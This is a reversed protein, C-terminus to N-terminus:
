VEMLNRISYNGLDMVRYNVKDKTKNYIKSKTFEENVCYVEFGTKGNLMSNVASRYVSDKQYTEIAFHTLNCIKRGPMCSLMKLNMLSTGNYYIVYDFRADGFHKQLERGCLRNMSRQVFGATVGLRLYLWRAAYEGATANLGAQLPLYGIESRLEQLVETNKRASSAKFCIYYNCENSDLDNIDQILKSFNRRDSIADLYLLVNKRGGNKETGEVKVSNEGFVLSRCVNKATDLSDYHCFEEQFKPYGENPKNIEEVLEEVTDAKPLEVANLDLYMGREQLYIERDYTFLIMKKGSVGFDFMISSYDTVLVDAANLFDYTDYKSPFPRIHRYLSYDVAKGVFPHLKVYFIQKESLMEDLCSLYQYIIKVQDDFNKKHLLGRWTPMYVIVQKGKLDNECVIKNGLKEQFLASNRPYGSLMIQGPYINRIMYDDLFIDRSFENQYLLMDSILFNRQVNGLGYERGPVQRGMAKLPTGHWTNLYVQEKKKIYYTPFTTDTILYGAAALAKYYAESHLLVTHVRNLQYREALQEWKTQREEDVVLLIRYDSFEEGHFARIMNFVNGAIDEGHKSELLILKKNVKEKLYAKTYGHSAPMDFFRLFKIRKAVVKRKSRSRKLENRFTAAKRKVVFAQQWLRQPIFKNITVATLLKKRNYYLTRHKRIEASSSYKLYHNNQWGPFNQDLFDHTENVMRKKLKLDSERNSFLAPYRFFFHRTCVYALEDRYCMEFQHEKMFEMVNEFAKVIDLTAESFSNLFGGTTTRRYNYLPARVVGISTAMCALKLVYALDEFRINEPFRIDYFLQRRVLKDWPFPSLWCLEFPYQAITFNQGATMMDNPDVIDRGAQSEYINNRNCLVLDNGDEAAKKYLLECMQPEVYDDSDVFLLYEGKARDAGYNRAYSVGHNEISYVCVKSAYNHEYEKLISLSNDPSGDNVVIIEIDELTQNILSDLCTRLYREVNYVPVIVSIKCM